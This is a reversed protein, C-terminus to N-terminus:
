WTLGPALSYRTQGWAALTYQQKKKTLIMELLIKLPVSHSIFEFKWKRGIRNLINIIEIIKIQLAYLFEYQMRNSQITYIGNESTMLNEYIYITLQM